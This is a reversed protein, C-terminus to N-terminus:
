KWAKLMGTGSKANAGYVKIKFNHAALLEELPKVVNNHWEMIIVGVRSLLGAADIDRLIEGEAGECDIKLMVNADPHDAFIPGLIDAAKKLHIREPKGKGRFLDAVSSMAGPLDPNYTIETAGDKDSLGFGFICIKKALEPNLRMNNRAHELTPEFPEFSYVREVFKKDALYLSTCGINLGIDIVIFKERPNSPEFDYEGGLVTAATYLTNEAPGCIQFGRGKKEPYILIGARDDKVLYGIKRLADSDRMIAYKKPGFVVRHAFDRFKRRSYLGVAVAAGRAMFAAPRKKFAAWFINNNSTENKM